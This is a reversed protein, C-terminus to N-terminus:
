DPPATVTFTVADASQASGNVVRVQNARLPANDDIQFTAELTTASTVRVDEVRVRSGSQMVVRTMGPIFNTGTITVVLDTEGREGEAPDIATITPRGAQYNVTRAINQVGNENAVQFNLTTGPPIPQDSRIIFDLRRDSPTGDLAVTMGDVPPNLISVTANSLYRGVVAGRVEPTADQFNALEDETFQVATVGPPVDELQTIFTGDIVAEARRFDIKSFLETPDKKFQKRQEKTLFMSQPIFAVLVRAQQKPILTNSRWASDNLRNMQNITYDPFVDMYASLLPGNFVAVSEAYSPGFSAVGILGAAVTGTGRLFRLIFNRKDQGQGKEAVGRLLSLELSSLEYNYQNNVCPYVSQNDDDLRGRRSRRQPQQPQQQQQQQQRNPTALTESTPTQSCQVFIKELDLSVDHILFQYDENRNTITVQIAVFRDGLRRGFADAVTGPDIVTVYVRVDRSILDRIAEASQARAPPAAACYLLLVCLCALPLSRFAKATSSM